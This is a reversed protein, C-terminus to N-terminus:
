GKNGMDHPVVVETIATSQNGATDTAVVTITYVRGDKDTGERWAELQITSGFGPATMNYIGYEDMVTIEISAIGSSDDTASGDILVDVTKHNPPWLTNPTATVTTVTPPTRDINLTVSTSTTNGANDVAIGTIVLGAGETTVTAQSTCLAIGSTSDDCTFSVTVDTNNWGSANPSPNITATITPSTKDIKISTSKTTEVNNANDTSKYYITTTGENSITFPTSYTNWITNDFSYETKKVGSGGESDTAALTVQIDSIYWDNTGSTGSLIVTTAPLTKDIKVSISKTTEVNGANDTSKYYVTATGENSITFPSSYTNWASNDFSYETKKVGSGGENDTATLTVQVDSVYWNNDGSAGSLAATTTPPIADAICVGGPIVNTDTVKANSVISSVKTAFWSTTGSISANTNTITVNSERIWGAPCGSINGSGDLKLVSGGGAMIYGSDLTQQISYAIDYNTGGYTKQWQINGNADLKLVLMDRNTGTTQGAVIYGSDLTQQISYAIDYNTGGYTKQWQINGNTDLKLVLMDSSGAGFSGTYGAVIYGGDLTQQISYAWGNLAGYIKQWQINGNTDLKSVLVNHPYETAGAVIYGGDLTQQVSYAPNYAGGGSGAKQWQINGSGDLKLIWMYARYPTSANMAGAVIYGGDLTQQASYARDNLTDGYTKQWQINGNTDLKLVWMDTWDSIGGIGFSKTDGALIYGGDSTQQISHAIDYNIGGYAKQWQINGNADLKLVQMDYGGAGFTTTEGALIYGGDSTQKVSYANNGGYTNAWTTQSEFEVSSQSGSCVSISVIYIIFFLFLCYLSKMLREKQLNEIIIKSKYNVM